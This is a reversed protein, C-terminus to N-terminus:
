DRPPNAARARRDAEGSARARGVDCATHESFADLYSVGAGFVQRLSQRWGDIRSNWDLWWRGIAPGSDGVSGAHGQPKRPHRWAWTARAGGSGALSGPRTGFAHWTRCARCARCSCAARGNSRSIFWYVDHVVLPVHLVFDSICHFAWDVLVGLEGPIGAM